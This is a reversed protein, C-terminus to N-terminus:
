SDAWNGLVAFSKWIESDEEDQRRQEDIVITHGIPQSIIDEPPNRAFERSLQETDAKGVARSRLRFM